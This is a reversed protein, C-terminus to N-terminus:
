ELLYPEIGEPLGDLEALYDSVFQIYEQKESFHEKVFTQDVLAGFRTGIWEAYNSYPWDEFRSVLADKVPNAHIYRCLHLLYGDKDVCIARYRGEFLTGTREYRKNFAKTYCNFVRQPVLGASEECGQRLLLHYHNPMLCYAIVAVDLASSYLKLLGLVYYYNSRERFIPQRGVGRNYIHYYQGQLFEVDRQPMLSDKGLELHKIIALRSLLVLVTNTLCAIATVHVALLLGFTGPVKSTGPM